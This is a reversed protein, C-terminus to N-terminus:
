PDTRRATAATDSPHSAAAAGALVARVGPARAAYALLVATCCALTVTAGRLGAGAGLVLAMLGLAVPYSALALANFVGMLRGGVQHHVPLNLNVLLMTLVFGSGLGALLAGAALTWFPGLPVLAAVGLGVVTLAAGFAAGPARRIAPAYALAGAIAGVAYAALTAGFQDPRSVAEYHAPLVVAALPAALFEVGFGLVMVARLAPDRRLLLWVRAPAAREGQSGDSGPLGGLCGVALAAGLSCCAVLALVGLAGWAAVLLGAFGPGALFAAGYTAQRWGAVRDLPVGGATAVAGLLSQRATMAPPRFLAAILGLVIFWPATLGLQRDVLLLGAVAGASALDCGVSVARGGVRDILAGGALAAAAGPLSTVAYILGALTPDGTREILLWPLAVNYAGIGFAAAAEAVLYLPVVRRAPTM